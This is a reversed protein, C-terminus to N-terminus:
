AAHRNSVLRRLAWKGLEPWNAPSAPRLCTLRWRPRVAEMWDRKYGDDGTGFDVEAVGDRDIVLEMLAATLTTGPSLSEASPLHALKHIYAKGGEVTWFQAAVPQGDALALAFRYHGLDSELMAFQRLLAPDGEAPKWSQRYIEEYAAWDAAEFRHSLRVEVKKAKRKLTTRLPGPRAALYDAYTRGQVPLYRNTDCVERRVLWGAASFTGELLTATGDEDPLKVLEIRNAARTLDSALETLLPSLSSPAWTFAYWNTLATLGRPGRTMAISVQERGDDALAVLPRHGARELLAFWERRAFPGTGGPFRGQM